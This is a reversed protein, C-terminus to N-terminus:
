FSLRLSFQIHRESGAVSSTIVGFNGNGGYLKSDGLSADPTSLVAFNTLNLAEGRFQVNFRETLRFNKFVSFDMTETPPGTLSELGVNGGTAFGTAINSAAVTYNAADGTGFTSSSGVTAGSALVACSAGSVVCNSGANVPSNWWFFLTSGYPNWDYGASTM